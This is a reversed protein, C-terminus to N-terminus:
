VLARFVAFKADGTRADGGADGGAIEAPHFQSLAITNRSYTKQPAAHVVASRVRHTGTGRQVGCQVGGCTCTAPTFMSTIDWGLRGMRLWEFTKAVKM